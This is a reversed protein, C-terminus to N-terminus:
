LQAPPWSDFRAPTVASPGLLALEAPPVSILFDAFSNNRYYVRVGYVGPTNAHLAVELAIPLRGTHAFIANSIIGDTSLPFITM